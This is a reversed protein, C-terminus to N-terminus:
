GASRGPWRVDDPKIGEFKAEWEKLYSQWDVKVPDSDWPQYIGSEDVLYHYSGAGRDFTYSDSGSRRRSSDHFSSRSPDYDKARVVEILEYGVGPWLGPHGSVKLYTKGNEILIDPAQVGYSYTKLIM